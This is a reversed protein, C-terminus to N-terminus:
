LNSFLALYKECSLKGLGYALNSNNTDSESIQDCDLEGYGQGGSSAFMIRAGGAKACVDFLRVTGITNILFNALPNDSSVGPTSGSTLHGVVDTGLLLLLLDPEIGAQDLPMFVRGSRGPVSAPRSTAVVDCGEAEM